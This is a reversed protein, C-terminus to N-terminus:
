SGAVRGNVPATTGGKLQAKSREIIAELAEQMEAASSAYTQQPDGPGYLIVSIAGRDRTPSMLVGQGSRMAYTIAAALQLGLGDLIADTRPEGLGKIVLPRFNGGRGRNGAFPTDTGSM